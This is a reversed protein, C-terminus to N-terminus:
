ADYDTQHSFYQSYEDKTMVVHPQNNGRRFIPVM